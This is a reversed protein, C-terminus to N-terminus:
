RIDEVDFDRIAEYVQEEDPTIQQVYDNFQPILINDKEDHIREFIKIMNDKPETQSDKLKEITVKFHLM